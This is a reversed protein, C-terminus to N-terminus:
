KEVILKFTQLENEISMKLFYIGSNLADPLPMYLQHLGKNYTNPIQNFSLVHGGLLDVLEFRVKKAETLEIDLVIYNSTPNPYIDIYKVGGISKSISTANENNQMFTPEQIQFEGTGNPIRSATLNTTQEGYTLSDIVMNQETLM